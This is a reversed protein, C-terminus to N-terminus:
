AHRRRHRMLPNIEALSADTERFRQYLGQLVTSASAGACADPM